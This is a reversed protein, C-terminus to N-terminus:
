PLTNMEAVSNGFNYGSPVFINTINNHYYKLINGVQLIEIQQTNSIGGNHYLIDYCTTGDADETIIVNNKLTVKGTTQNQGNHCKFGCSGTKVPNHAVHLFCDHIDYESAYNTGAGIADNVESYINCNYIECKQYKALSAFNKDLHIAYAYDSLGSTDEPAVSKITMNCVSGQTIVLPCNDYDGINQYLITGQKSEGVLHLFKNVIVTEKYEGDKIYITDGDKANAIAASITTFDGNGNADVIISPVYGGVTAWSLKKRSNETINELKWISSPENIFLGVATPHLTKLADLDVIAYSETSVHSLDFVDNLNNSVNSRSYYTVRTAGSATSLGLLLIASGYMSTTTDFGFALKGTYNTLDIVARDTGNQSGASGITGSGTAYWAANSTYGDTIETETYEDFSGDINGYKIQDTGDKDVKGNLADTVEGVGDAAAAVGNELKNLKVSSVVDGPKWTTPTYSM